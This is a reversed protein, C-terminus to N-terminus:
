VLVVPPYFLYIDHRLIPLVEMKPSISNATDSVAQVETKPEM